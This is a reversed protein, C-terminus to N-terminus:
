LNHGIQENVGLKVLVQAGFIRMTQYNSFITFGYLPGAAFDNVGGVNVRTLFVMLMVMITSRAVEDLIAFASIDVRACTSFTKGM